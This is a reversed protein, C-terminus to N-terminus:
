ISVYTHSYMVSCIHPDSKNCTTQRNYVYSIHICSHLNELPHITLIVSLDTLAPKFQFQVTQFGKVVSTNYISVDWDVKWISQTTQQLVSLACSPLKSLFTSKSILVVQLDRRTGRQQAEARDRLCRGASFTTTYALLCHLHLQLLPLSQFWNTVLGREQQQQLKSCHISSFGM